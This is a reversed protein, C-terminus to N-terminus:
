ETLSRATETLENWRDDRQTEAVIHVLQSTVNESSIILAVAGLHITAPYVFSRKETVAHSGVM